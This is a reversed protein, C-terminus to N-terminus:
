RSSHFGGRGAFAMGGYVFGPGFVCISSDLGVGPSALWYPNASDTGDVLMEYLKSSSDLVSPAGMNVMYAMDYGSNEDVVDGVKKTPLSDYKGPYKAKLYNEPAYDGSKYTYGGMGFFGQYEMSATKLETEGKYAKNNEKDLRIELATLIDEMRMSRTEKAYRGNYISCAKDLVNGSQLVGANYWAEAGYLHLYPDSGEKKIPKSTTIILNKKDESLGLVRWTTATDVKYTQSETYGTEESKLEATASSSNLSDNYNTVFDGINIEGENFAEVLTKAEKGFIITRSGITVEGTEKVINKEEETLMKESVLRNLIEDLTEAPEGDEDHKSAFKDSKWLDAQEQVQGGRTEERSTLARGVIGNEGVVLSISVGALILLVIITIILAILTIGKREKKM